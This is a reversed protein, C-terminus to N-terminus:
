FLFGSSLLVRLAWVLRVSEQMVAWILNTAPELQRLALRATTHEQPTVLQVELDV